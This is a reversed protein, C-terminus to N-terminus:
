GAAAAPVPRRRSGSYIAFVAGLASCFSAAGSGDDVPFIMAMAGAGILMLVGGILPLSGAALAGLVSVAPVTIGPKNLTALLSYFAALLANLNMVDIGLGLALGLAGGILGFLFAVFAMDDRGPTLGDDSSLAATHLGDIAYWGGQQTAM